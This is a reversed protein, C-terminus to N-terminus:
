KTVGNTICGFALTLKGNQDAQATACTNPCLVIRQPNAPNDYHWGNPQSCDASYVLPTEQGSGSTFAVNVRDKDLTQGNPPPPLGFDCGLKVQGRIANFASQM